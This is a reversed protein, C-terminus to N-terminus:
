TLRGNWMWFIDVRSSAAVRRHVPQIRPMLGRMVTTVAGSEPRSPSRMSGLRPKMATCTSCPRPKRPMARARVSGSISSARMSSPKIPATEVKAYMMTPREPPSTRRCTEYMWDPVVRPCTSPGAAPASTAACIPKRRDNTMPAKMSHPQEASTDHPTGEPRGRSAASPAARVVESRSSTVTASTTSAPEVWTNKRVEIRGWIRGGRPTGTSDVSSTPPTRM